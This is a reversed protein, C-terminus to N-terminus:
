ACILFLYKQGCDIGRRLFQKKKNRIEHLSFLALFILAKRELANLIILYDLIVLQELIYEFSFTLYENKTELQCCSVALGAAVCCMMKM